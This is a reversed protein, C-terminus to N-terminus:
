NTLLQISVANVQLSGKYKTLKGEVTIFNNNKLELNNNFVTISIKSTKDDLQLITIDQHKVISDIYGTIKITKDLLNDNLMSIKTEPLITLKDIIFISILGTLALIYSLKLIINKNM